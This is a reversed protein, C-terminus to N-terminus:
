EKIIKTRLFTEGQNVVILYLGESQASIDITFDNGSFNSGEMVTRGTIDILKYTAQTFANTTNITVLGKAPNPSVQLSASVKNEKIETTNDVYVSLVATGCYKDTVTVTYTGQSLGSIDETTANNSWQYTYPSVGGSVTLNISGTNGGTTTGTVVATLDDAKAIAASFLIILIIYIKKM